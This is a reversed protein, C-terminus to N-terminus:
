ENRMWIQPAKRELARSSKRSRRPFLEARRLGCGILMAVMAHDRLEHPTSPTARDLLRRGQEPTLWNGLRLALGDDGKVRRIGAALDPSGSVPM